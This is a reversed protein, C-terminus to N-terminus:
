NQLASVRQSKMGCPDTDTRGGEGVVEDYGGFREVSAWSRSYSSPRRRPSTFQDGGIGCLGEPRSRSKRATAVGGSAIPLNVTLFGCREDRGRQSIHVTRECRRIGADCGRVVPPQSGSVKREVGCCSPHIPLQGLSETPLLHLRV